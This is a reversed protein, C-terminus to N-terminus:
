DQIGIKGSIEIGANSDSRHQDLALFSINLRASADDSIRNRFAFVFFAEVFGLCQDPSYLQGSRACLHKYRDLITCQAALRLYFCSHLAAARPQPFAVCLTAPRATAKWHTSLASQQNKCQM